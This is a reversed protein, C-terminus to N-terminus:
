TFHRTCLHRYGWRVRRVSSGQEKLYSNDAQPSVSAQQEVTPPPVGVPDGGFSKINEQVWRLGLLQDLVAYNGSLGLDSLALFGLPGLRYNISVVVSDWASYCGDYTPNSVGGGENSGGYLWAKVPLNSDPTASVPAWIDLYLSNNYVEVEHALYGWSPSSLYHNLKGTKM